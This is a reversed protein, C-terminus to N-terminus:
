SIEGFIKGVFNKGHIKKWYSGKQVMRTNSDVLKAFCFKEIEFLYRSRLLARAGVGHARVGAGAQQAKLVRDEAICLCWAYTHGGL